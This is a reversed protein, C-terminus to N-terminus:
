RINVGKGVSLHIGPISPTPVDIWPLDMGVGVTWDQIIFDIGVAGPLTSERNLVLEERTDSSGEIIWKDIFLSEKMGLYTWPRITGQSKTATIRMEASPGKKVIQANQVVSGIMLEGSVDWARDIWVLSLGACPQIRSLSPQEYLGFFSVKESVQWDVYLREWPYGVDMRMSLVSLLLSSM